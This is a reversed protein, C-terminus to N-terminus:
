KILECKPTVKFDRTQQKGDYTFNAKVPDTSLSTLDCPFKQNSYVLVEFPHGKPVSKVAYTCKGSSLNGAAAAHAVEEFQPISIGGTSAPTKYDGVYVTLDSCKMGALQSQTSKTVKLTGTLAVARTKVVLRSNRTITISKAAM